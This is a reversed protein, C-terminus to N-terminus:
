VEEKEMKRNKSALWTMAQKMAPEWFEFDHKGGDWANATVPLRYEEAFSLFDPFQYPFLPDETGFLYLMDPLRIGEGMKRKAIAAYDYEESDWNRNKGFVREMNKELLERDHGAGNELLSRLNLPASLCVVARYMGPYRASIVAAGRGGMSLGGLFREGAQDSVPLMAEMAAPLEKAIFTCMGPGGEVDEYWSNLGSPMVVAIGTEQAYRETPMMTLCDTYDGTFGNLFYLVPFRVGAPFKEKYHDGAERQASYEPLVVSVETRMNLSKSFFNVKVLSM